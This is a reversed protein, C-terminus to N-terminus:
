WVLRAQAAIPRMGASDFLKDIADAGASGKSGAEGLHLGSAIFLADVGIRAAGAM